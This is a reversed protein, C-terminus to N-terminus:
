GLGGYPTSSLGAQWKDKRGYQTTDFSSTLSDTPIPKVMGKAAGKASRDDAYQTTTVVAGSPLVVARLWEATLTRENLTYASLPGALRCDM